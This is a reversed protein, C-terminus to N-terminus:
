DKGGQTHSAGELEDTDASELIGWCPRAQRMCRVHRDVNREGTGSHWCLDVKDIAHKWSHFLEGLTARVQGKWRRMSEAKADKFVHEATTAIVPDCACHRIIGGDRREACIKPPGKFWSQKDGNWETEHLVYKTARDLQGTVPLGKEHQFQTIVERTEPGIFGDVDLDYGLAQLRVQASMVDADPSPKHYSDRYHRWRRGCHERAWDRYALDARYAKCSFANEPWDARATAIAIFGLVVAVAAFLWRFKTQTM